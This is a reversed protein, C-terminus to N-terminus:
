PRATAPLPVAAHAGQALRHGAIGWALVMPMAAAGLAVLSSLVVMLPFWLALLWATARPRFGHRLLAIGLVTSGVLSILMGPISMLLFAEELWPTWYTGVLSATAVVYGTLAIRWGWTEARRPARTRRVLFATATVAAFVFLWGKGYTLYVTDPDSWDLLPLLADGAPEAWARVAGSELDEKGDETAYRSLAHIPALVVGFAAAAVAARGVWRTQEQTTM